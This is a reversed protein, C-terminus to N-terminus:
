NKNFILLSSFEGIKATIIQVLDQYVTETDSVIESGTFRVVTFGQSTLDRDRKRDRKAQESTREHYNHGDCEVM